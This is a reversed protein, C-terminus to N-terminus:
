PKPPANYILLLGPTIGLHPHLSATADIRFGDILFGIGFYFSSTASSVGTRVLLKESFSYQLGANINISQDEIKEAAGGIFFKDSVDYGFGASLITPLREENNKGIRAATPNYIHVGAQFQETVHLIIGGEVTISSASGYYGAKVNYYNFQVGADVKGLKRGYALGIQSENYLNSGFYNGSLGFNGSSAPLAMQLQYLGLEQLLFKKEGYLGASFNKINALAAQNNQFSFADTNLTSYTNLQTYVAAVPIRITQAQLYFYSSLCLTTLLIGRM